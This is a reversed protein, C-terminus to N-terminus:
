MINCVQIIKKFTTVEHKLTHNEFDQKSIGNVILELLSIIYISNPSLLMLPETDQVSVGKLSDLTM